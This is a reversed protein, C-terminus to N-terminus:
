LWVNSATSNRLLTDPSIWPPEAKYGSYSCSGARSATHKPLMKINRHLTIDGAETCFGSLVSSVPLANGRFTVVLSFQTVHSLCCGWYTKCLETGESLASLHLTLFILSAKLYLICQTEGWRRCEEHEPISNQM